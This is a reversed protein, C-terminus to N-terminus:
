RAGKAVALFLALRHLRRPGLSAFRPMVDKGLYTHCELCGSTAVVKAGPVLADPLGQEDQWDCVHDITRLAEPGEDPPPACARRSSSGCGTLSVTALIVFAVLLPGPM